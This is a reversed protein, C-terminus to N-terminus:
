LFWKEVRFELIKGPNKWFTIETERDRQRETERDRQRERERERERCIPSFTQSTKKKKKKSSDKKRSFSKELKAVLKSIVLHIVSKPM